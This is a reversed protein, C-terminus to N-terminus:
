FPRNRFASPTMGTEQKFKRRFSSTNLYGVELSIADISLDSETLLKKAKELRRTWLYHSFNEQFEKKFIYSMYAISIGFSDALTTISFDPSTYNSDIIQQIQAPQILANEYEMHFQELLNKINLQIKEGAEEYSCSRCFYLTEFYLDSYNKFKINCQNMATIFATITDILICRIFFDPFHIGGSHQQKITTFLRQLVTAAHDFDQHELDHSLEDLMKYPYSLDTEQPALTYIQTYSVVPQSEQWYSSAMIANEYLAPIGLPSSTSNSIASYVGYEEYLDSLLAFLAEEKEPEKGPYSVLLMAAENSEELIICSNKDPLVQHLFDTVMDPMLKRGTHSIRVAFNHRDPDATFFQDINEYNMSNSPINQAMVSDLISKQM